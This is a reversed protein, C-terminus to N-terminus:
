RKACVQKIKEQVDKTNGIAKLRKVNSCNESGVEKVLKM